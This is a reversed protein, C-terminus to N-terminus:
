ATSRVPCYRRIDLFSELIREGRSPGEIPTSRDSTLLSQYIGALRRGCSEPSYHERVVEANRSILDEAHELQLAAAMIPNDELLQARDPASAALRLIVEAQLDPTLIAFDVTEDSAAGKSVLPM